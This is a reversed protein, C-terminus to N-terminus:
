KVEPDFNEMLWADSQTEPVSCVIKKGNQHMSIYGVNAFPLTVFKEAKGNSANIMLIEPSQAYWDWAYVWNGDSSWEIPDLVQSRIFIQSSDVLSIIWIGIKRPIKRNWYVAVRKGDPSYRPDFMYGVSDNKVLPWEEETNPNLFHFNRNGPRQYLINFGPSWTLLFGDASLESKDFPRPTGGNASTRWVRAIGNQNSGFAIEKGDPSWVPSNNDSNFFTLQEIQGGETPMVFINGQTPNGMRFAIKKGDPSISPSSFSSTGTTLQKTKVAKTSGKDEYSVLWLNSYSLERTYLCHKNDKSLTFLDGAQLGIQIVVPIGKATGTAPDVKIKMLDKTLGQSLLYYIADGKSSWRPSSLSVSDEVIKHQQSGNTRITWITYYKEGRALFLLLDGAPSWDIDWIWMFPGNLPISTVEGTTKNIFWIGKGVNNCALHSGHPSWSMIMGFQFKHSMGGLRPVIYTGRTSDNIASISLESGGPLWRLNQIDKDKFVELPQGGSLDQVLVKKEAPSIKSVYAIFNGDPSISPYSVKGTFTIQRHTPQIQKSPEKRFFKNFFISIIALIIMAIALTGYILRRKQTKKRERDRPLQFKQPTKPLVKESDRKLRRLDVLMEEIHQYRDDKKKEL